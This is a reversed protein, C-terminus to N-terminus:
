PRPDFLRNAYILFDPRSTEHVERLLELQFADDDLANFLKLGLRVKGPAAARILDPVRHLWGIVTARQGARDSGALTPSFDKELPMPLSGGGEEWARLLEGTTYRYEEERWHTEGQGPLHYKVSPIVPM